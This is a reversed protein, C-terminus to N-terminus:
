CAEKIRDKLQAVWNALGQNLASCAHLSEKTNLLARSVQHGIAKIHELIVSSQLTNNL